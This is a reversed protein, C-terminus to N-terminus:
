VGEDARSKIYDRLYRLFTPLGADDWSEEIAEKLRQNEAQLARFAEADVAGSNLGSVQDHSNVSLMFGASNPWPQIQLKMHPYRHNGLRLAYIPTQSGSAKDAREFPPAILLEHAPCGEQWVLRRRVVEPVVGAPYALGLYIETAGRLLDLRLGRLDHHGAALTPEMLLEGTAAVSIGGGNSSTLEVDRLPYSLDLPWNVSVVCFLCGNGIM